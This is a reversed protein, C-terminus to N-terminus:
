NAAPQRDAARTRLHARRPCRCRRLRSPLAIRWRSRYCTTANGIARCVPALLMQSLREAAKALEDEKTKDKVSDYFRRAAAEIVARAPLEHGYYNIGHTVAFLYSRKDGLVYELLLTDADLVEM